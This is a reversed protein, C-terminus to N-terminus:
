VITIGASANGALTVLVTAGSTTISFVMLLRDGTSVPVSVNANGSAIAGALLTALPLAPTLDVFAATPSFVNSGQVARYIQARVTATGTLTLAVTASITAAISTITGPRPVTFAETALSSTLDINVGALAVGPVSTGFGVLSVTGVLGSILSTLVVPITGSSFPIISGTAAPPTICAADIGIFPGLATCQGNGHGNGSCGCMSNNLCM